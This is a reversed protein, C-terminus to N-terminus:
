NTIENGAFGLVVRARLPADTTKNASYTATYAGSPVSLEGTVSIEHNVQDKNNYYIAKNTRPDYDIYDGSKLTTNFTISSSGVTVTPNEVPADTHTYAYISGLQANAATTGATYLTVTNISGFKPVDRVAPYNGINTTIGQFPYKNMDYDGLDGDLAVFERWGDFNLDVFYTVFGDGSGELKILLGDGDRGTGKVKLKLALNETLRVPSPLAIATMKQGITKNEDRELLLTENEFLSSFRGEVRVYPKQTGYPNNGKFSMTPVTLDNGLNVRDYCMELFAYEGAGKEIIKYEGGLERIKAKTEETFYGSQRIRAYYAYQEFREIHSKQELEDEKLTNSAMTMDHVVSMVGLYDIDDIFLSKLITNYTGGVAEEDPRFSFWGLTSVMNSQGGRVYNDEIHSKVALKIARTPYDYAGIRGRVNYIQSPNAAAEVIPTKECQSLVRHLFMAYYYQRGEVTEAGFHQGTGDIADFYIMDFGGENYTKATRDAVEYFLESGLKPVLMGFMSSLHYIKAGEYHRARETNLAGRKCNIFGDTTGKGVEIIEEDILIYKSNPRAFVVTTDFDTADEMTAINTNRETINKRLIYEDERTELQKLWYPDKIFDDADPAIYFSYTHLAYSIGNEHLKKGYNEYFDKSDKFNLWEFSGQIFSSSGYPNVRTTTHNIDLQNAGFKKSLEIMLDLNDPSVKNTMFYDEYHLEFERAYPAGAKSALGVSTDVHDLVKQAIKITDAFKTFSIGIKAGTTGSPLEASACAITNTYEGLCKNEMITWATMGMGNIRYSDPDQSIKINTLLNGFTVKSYGPALESDIEFTMFDPLVEVLMYVKAGGKFEVCIRNGDIYMDKPALKAGTKTTLYIFEPNAANANVDKGDYLNLIEVVKGNKKNVKISFHNNKFTFDNKGEEVGDLTAKYYYEGHVNSNSAMLIDLRAWHTAIDGFKNELREVSINKETATIGLLRNLVTVVEARTITKDPKFTGDPYGGVLGSGAAAMIADYYFHDTPVDTFSVKNDIELSSAKNALDVFEARTIFGEPDYKNSTIQEFFGKEDLFAVANYYWQDEPVDTFRTTYGAPIDQVGLILRAFITCAESRRMNNQPKFLNGAYGVIYAKNAGNYQTEIKPTEINESPEALVGIKDLTVSVESTNVYGEFPVLYRASLTKNDKSFKLSLALPGMSDTLASSNAVIVAMETGSPRTVKKMAISNTTARASIVALINDYKSFSYKYVGDGDRPNDKSQIAVYKLITNSAEMSKTRDTGSLEWDWMTYMNANEDAFSPMYVVAYKDKNEDMVTNFWDLVPQRPHLELHFIMYSVGNNEVIIYYNDDDLYEYKADEPLTDMLSLYTSKNTDRWIITGQTSAFIDFAGYAAGFPIGDDVLIKGIDALREYQENFPKDNRCLENLDNQTKGQNTVVEKYTYSNGTTLPGVFSVHKINFNDKNNAIWFISDEFNDANKSTLLNQTSQFSLLTFEGEGVYDKEIEVVAALASASLAVLIVLSFCVSLLLKKM